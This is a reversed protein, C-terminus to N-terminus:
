VDILAQGAEAVPDPVDRPVLVEPPGFESVLVARV